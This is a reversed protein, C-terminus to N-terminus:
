EDKNKDKNFILGLVFDTLAVGASIGLGIKLELYDDEIETNSAESYIFTGLTTFIMALPFTGAFIIEERRIIKLWDHFEEEDYEAPEDTKSYPTGDEHFSQCGILM